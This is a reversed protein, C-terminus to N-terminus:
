TVTGTQKCKDQNEHLYWGAVQKYDIKKLKSFM